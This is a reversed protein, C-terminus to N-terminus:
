LHLPAPKEDIRRRQLKQKGTYNCVVAQKRCITAVGRVNYGYSLFINQYIRARVIRSHDVRLKAFYGDEEISTQETTIHM